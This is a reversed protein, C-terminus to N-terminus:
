QIVFTPLFVAVVQAPAVMMALSSRLEEKLEERHGVDSLQEITKAGLVAMLRDRVEAERSQLADATRSGDVTAVITAMLFRSGMTEAPNLVLSEVTFYAVEEPAETERPESSGREAVRPGVLLLGGGVGLVLATVLVAMMVGRGGSAPASIEEEGTGDNQVDDDAM